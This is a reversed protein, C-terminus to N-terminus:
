HGETEMQALREEALKRTEANDPFFNIVDQLTKRAKEWNKLEYFSYGLKLAADPAKDSSKYQKLVVLFAEIAGNFDKEAYLAEGIWHQASAALSSTPYDKLFARFQPVAAKPDQLLTKFANDYVAREEREPASANGTSPREVSKETTKEASRDNNTATAKSLGAPLNKDDSKGTGYSYFGNTDPKTAQAKLADIDTNDLTKDPAIAPTSNSSNAAAPRATQLKELREDVKQFTDRQSKQLIELENRLTENDGRLTRLEQELENVRQLLQLAADDSLPAAGVPNVVLLTAVVTGLVSRHLSNPM